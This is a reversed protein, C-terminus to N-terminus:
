ENFFEELRRQIDKRRDKGEVEIEYTHETLLSFLSKGFALKKQETFAKRSKNSTIIVPLKNNARTRFVYDYASDIFTSKDSIYGKDIDDLVLLDADLISKTFVARANTDYRSDCYKELVETLMTFYVTYGRKLAEKLILCSALTKGTGQNGYFYLGTGKLILKDLNDVYKEIVRKIRSDTVDSIEHEWYKLPVNSRWMNLYVEFAIAARVDGGPENKYRNVLRSHIRELVRKNQRKSM